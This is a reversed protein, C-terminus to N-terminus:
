LACFDGTMRMVAQFNEDTVLLCPTATACGGTNPPEFWLGTVLNFGNAITVRASGGQNTLISLRGAGGEAVILKPHNATACPTAIIERPENLQNNIRLNVGGNTVQGAPAAGGENRWVEGNGRDSEFIDDMLLVNVRTFAAAGWISGITGGGGANYDNSTAITCNTPDILDVRDNGGGAVREAAVLRRPGTAPTYMQLSMFRGAICDGQVGAQNITILHNNGGGGASASVFFQNGVADFVIDVPGNLFSNASFTTVNGASIKRIRNNGSNAVYIAGAADTTLGRPHSIGQGAGVAVSTIGFGAPMGGINVAPDATVTFTAVKSSLNTSDTVVLGLVYKGASLATNFSPAVISPDNLTANSGPPLELFSWQYTFTQGLNCGAGNDADSSPNNAALATVQVVQNLGVPAGVLAANGATVAPVLEGITAVPASAGCAAATITGDFAKSAHGESDTAVVRFVYAGLLDPTFSPSTAGPLNLSAKSGAPASLLLWKYTFSEAPNCAPDTDADVVTATLQTLQNAFVPSAPMSTIATVSPVNQGCPQVQIDLTKQPSKNGESDTVVLGVTYPSSMTTPVDPTFSPNSASVLNLAAKSGKPVGLLTWAYAYSETKGCTTDGDTITASLQVPAGLVPPMPSTAITTVVPPRNGCDDSTWALSKPVSVHGLDDTVVLTVEYDGKLDPKFSPTATDAALLKATSGAPAKSLTWAYSEIRKKLGCADTEDDHTVKASLAMVEGVNPTPPMGTISQIVPINAGCKGATVTVTSPDSAAIGNSVILQVVFTGTMDPTFNPKVTDAGLLSAASGPPLTAFTWRYELPRQSPDSSSGGDLTVPAGVAVNPQPAGANATPRPLEASCASWLVLSVLWFLFFKRM